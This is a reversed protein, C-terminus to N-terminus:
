QYQAAVEISPLFEELASVLAMVDDSYDMDPDYYEFGVNLKWMKSSVEECFIMTYRQRWTLRADRGIRIVKEALQKFESYPNM